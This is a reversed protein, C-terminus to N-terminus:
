RIGRVLRRLDYKRASNDIRKSGQRRSIVITFPLNNSIVVRLEIQEKDKIVRDEGEVEDNRDEEEFALNKVDLDEGQFADAFNVISDDESDSPAPTRYRSSVDLIIAAHFRKLRNSAYRNRLVASDLESVRYTGKLPNLKIIRYLGTWRYNFKKSVSINIAMASDFILIMNGVKFEDNRLRHTSNFNNKGIIRM